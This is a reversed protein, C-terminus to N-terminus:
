NKMQKLLSNNRSTITLLQIYNTIKRGEKDYVFPNEFKKRSLEHVAKFMQTSDKAKAIEDVKQNLQIDKDIEITSKIEHMIKNRESKLEKRKESNKCAAIKLRLDKQKESLERIEPNDPRNSKNSIRIGVVEHAAATIQNAANEWTIKDEKLMGLREELKNRYEERKALDNVLLYSNFQKEATVKQPKYIKYLDLNFTTFLLRHDSDTLTGSYSRANLLIQKKNAQCIIYDIQNYIDVIRGGQTRQSHWTTIHRAPHKFASNSIFLNNMNCFDVLQQGAKNRKGRSFRGMCLEDDEPQKGIKANFDGGIMMLCSNRKVDQITTSLDTYFETRENPNADVRGTTPAYVNIVSLM